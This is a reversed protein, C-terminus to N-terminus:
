RLRTSHTQRQVYEFIVEARAVIDESSYGDPLGDLLRDIIAAKMQAQVAARERLDGM